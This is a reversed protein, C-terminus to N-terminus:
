TIEEGLRGFAKYPCTKYQPIEPIRFYIIRFFHHEMKSVLFDKVIKEYIKPFINLVSVPRFNTVSFKNDTYKDLRSVHLKLM